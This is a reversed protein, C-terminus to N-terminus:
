MIINSMLSVDHLDAIELLRVGKFKLILIEKCNEDRGHM